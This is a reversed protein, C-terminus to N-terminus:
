NSLRIFTFLLPFFALRLAWPTVSTKDSINFTEHIENVTNCFLPTLLDECKLLQLCHIHSM